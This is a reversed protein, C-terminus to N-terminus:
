GRFSAPRQVLHEVTTGLARAVLVCAMAPLPEARTFLRNVYASEIGSRRALERQSWGMSATMARVNIAMARRMADMDEAAAQAFKPRGGPESRWADWAPGPMLGASTEILAGRALLISAYAKARSPEVEAITALAGVAVPMGPRLEVCWITAARLPTTTIVQEM